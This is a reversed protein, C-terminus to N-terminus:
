LTMPKESRGYGEAFLLDFALATGDDRKYRCAPCACNEVQAILDHGCNFCHLVRAV